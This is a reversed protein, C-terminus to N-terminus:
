FTIPDYEHVSVSREHGYRLTLNRDRRPLTAGFTLVLTDARDTSSLGTRRKYEEKNEIKIRQEHRDFTYLITTLQEYLVPDNAICGEDIIWDRCKSWLEARKNYYHEPEVSPAGPHVEIVRYGRDRLIDIVGAGVGTSEVVIADPMEKNCLDMTIQAIRVTNIGKFTLMPRTRADRGQRWNFVTEDDGFRAVDVALILAAGPDSILEREQAIQCAIKGIFGNYSQNPFQGLIRVKVEDSDLGGWKDIMDAIAQKNSWSVERSDVSECDYFRENKDFCDAFDGTPQTPNGFVFFFAEGDTLAGEAVEWLKSDIGSAEDFIIVITKGENHLGAFAETNQESVTIAEIMYNKRQEEPYQAFYYKTAEWNFWHKCIFLKHWKALEPWTKSALQAATNATVVGRTDPRTAMFFHNLWAVVASKGVGHGSVRASRWVLLELGLKKREINEKIHAGVKMLLRRQWPEPGSKLMLPNHGGDPLEPEGWPYAFMVFGFPDAYYQAVQEALKENTQPSYSTEPASHRAM